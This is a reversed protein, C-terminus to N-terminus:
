KLIIDQISRITMGSVKSRQTDAMAVERRDFAIIRFGSYLSKM